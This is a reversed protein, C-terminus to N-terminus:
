EMKSLFLYFLFNKKKLKLENIKKLFQFLKVIKIKKKNLFIIIM